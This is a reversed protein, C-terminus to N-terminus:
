KKKAYSEAERWDKKNDIDVSKARPLLLINSKKIFVSSEKKWLKKTGWYFQGADIYM